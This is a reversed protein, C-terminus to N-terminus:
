GHFGDLDQFFKLKFILNRLKGSFNVSVSIIV